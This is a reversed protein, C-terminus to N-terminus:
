DPVRVKYVLSATAVPDGTATHVVADCFVISRGRQTIWGEAVADQERVAGLFSVNLSLTLMEARVAYASGVAPVVCTDILSTIAGGHVVRAPQEYEPKYPLRLRAYDQRIEEVQLGLFKPFWMADPWAAFDKWIALREPDLEPFRTANAAPDPV